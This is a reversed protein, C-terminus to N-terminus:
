KQELFLIRLLIIYYAFSSEYSRIHAIIFTAAPHNGNLNETNVGITAAKTDTSSINLKFNITIYAMHVTGILITSHAISFISTNAYRAMRLIFHNITLALESAVIIITLNASRCIEAVHTVSSVSGNVTDTNKGTHITTTCHAILRPIATGLTIFAEIKNTTNALHPTVIRVAINTIGGVNAALAFPPIIQNVTCAFM